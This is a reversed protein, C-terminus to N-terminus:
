IIQYDDDDIYKEEENLISNSINSEKRIKDINDQM